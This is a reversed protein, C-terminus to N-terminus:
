IEATVETIEKRPRGRPRSVREESVENTRVLSELRALREVLMAEREAADELKANLDAVKQEAFRQGSEDEMQKLYAQAVRQDQRAEVGLTILTSEPLSALQEVTFVSFYKYFEAKSPQNIFFADLRYGVIQESDGTKFLEWQKPYKIDECRELFLENQREEKLEFSLMAKKDIVLGDGEMRIECYIEDIMVPYGKEKTAKMDPRPKRYFRVYQPAPKTIEKVDEYSLGM